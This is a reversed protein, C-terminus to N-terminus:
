YEKVRSLWSTIGPSITPKCLLDIVNSYREKLGCGELSLASVILIPIHKLSKETSIFELVDWGSFLPGSKQGQELMMDLIILDISPLAKYINKRLFFSQWDDIKAPSYVSHPSSSKSYNASDIIAKVVKVHIPDDEIIFINM